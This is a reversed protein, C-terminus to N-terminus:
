RVIRYSAQRGDRSDILRAPLEENRPDIAGDIIASLGLPLVRM